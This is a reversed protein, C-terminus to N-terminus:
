WVDAPRGGHWQPLCQQRQDFRPEQPLLRDLCNQTLVNINKIVAAPFTFHANLVRCEGTKSAPHRHFIGMCGFRTFDM